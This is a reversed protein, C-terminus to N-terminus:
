QPREQETLTGLGSISTLEALVPTLISEGVWGSGGEGVEGTRTLFGGPTSHRYNIM